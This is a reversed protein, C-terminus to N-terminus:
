ENGTAFQLIQVPNGDILDIFEVDSMYSLGDQFFGAHKQRIGFKFQRGGQWHHLIALPM